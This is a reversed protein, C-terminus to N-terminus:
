LSFKDFETQNCLLHQCVALNKRALWIQDAVQKQTAKLRLIAKVNKFTSIILFYYRM